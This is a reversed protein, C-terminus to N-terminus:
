GAPRPKEISIPVAGGHGAARWERIMSGGLYGLQISTAVVALGAAIWLLSDHRAFGDVAVVILALSTAPVLVFVRFRLGLAIGVLTAITAALGM